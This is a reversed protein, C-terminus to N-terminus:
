WLLLLKGTGQFRVCVVVKFVQIVEESWASVVVRVMLRVGNLDLVLLLEVVHDILILVVLVFPQKFHSIILQMRKMFCGPHVNLIPEEM